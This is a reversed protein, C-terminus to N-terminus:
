PKKINRITIQSYVLIGLSILFIFVSIVILWPFSSKSENDPFVASTPILTPQSLQGQETPQSAAVETAQLNFESVLEEGIQIDKEYDVNCGVTKSDSLQIKLKYRGEPPLITVIPYEIQDKRVFYGIKLPISEFVKQNAADIVDFSGSGSFPIDGINEMLLKIKWKGFDVKEDVGNMQIGCTTDGPVNVILSIGVRSVVKVNFTTGESTSVASPNTPEEMAALFGFVYQGPITGPPVTITFPLRKLGNRPLEIVGEDPMQIWKHAEQQNEFNFSIGGRSATHGDVPMVRIRSTSSRYNITILANTASAGPTLEYVFYGINPDEPKIGFDKKGQAFVTFPLVSLILLLTILLILVKKM